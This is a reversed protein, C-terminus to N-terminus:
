LQNACASFEMMCGAKDELCTFCTMSTDVSACFSDGCDAACVGSCACDVFAKFLAESEPCIPKPQMVALVDGCQACSSSGGQGSSFGGQGTSSVFNSSETSGAGGFGQCNAEDTAERQTVQYCCLEAGLQSTAESDVSLVKGPCKPNSFFPLAEAQAPCSGEVATWTFCAERGCGGGLLPLAVLSAAFLLRSSLMSSTM